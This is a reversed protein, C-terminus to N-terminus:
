LTLAMSYAKEFKDAIIDWTYREEITKRANSGLSTRMEKHELLKSVAQLIEEPHRPLVFLGNIGHEIVDKSGSVNTCIVPIGCAMAELLVTPLGEYHSPLIFITANQYLKILQKRDVHGMFIVKNELDHHKIFERIKTELEGKGVLILSIDYKKCFVTASELLDFIGKRYSLRGVFLAYPDGNHSHIPFFDHEDVGNGLILVDKYNYYKKIEQAVSTAVTTVIKSNNLTKIIIPRSVFHSLIKINLAKLDMIPIFRSDEIISTHVTTIIPLIPNIAPSLPTHIHILDIDKKIQLIKKNVFYSHFNIHFPYIPIFPCKIVEIESLRTVSETLSDRTILTVTHGGDILKKSLNYSYNGIGEQPPFPTSIIMCINLSESM